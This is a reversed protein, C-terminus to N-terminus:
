MSARGIPMMSGVDLAQEIATTVLLSRAAISAIPEFVLGSM